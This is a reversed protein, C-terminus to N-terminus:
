ACGGFKSIAITKDAQDECVEGSHFLGELAALVYRQRIIKDTGIFPRSMDDVTPAVGDLKMQGFFTSRAMKCNHAAFTRDVYARAQETNDILTSAAFAGSALFMFVILTTFVQM